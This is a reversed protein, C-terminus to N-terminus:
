VKMSDARSFDTDTESAWGVFWTRHVIDNRTTIVDQTRAALQRVIAVSSEDDRYFYAFVSLAMERLPGATLGALVAHGLQQDRLGGHHLAFLIAHSMAFCMQEFEVVFRGIAGYLATTQQEYKIKRDQDEM